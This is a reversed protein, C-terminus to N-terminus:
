VVSKRDTSKGGGNKGILGIKEGPDIQFTAGRLVDQAGYHKKVDQCILLSM